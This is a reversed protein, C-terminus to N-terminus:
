KVMFSPLLNHITRRSIRRNNLDLIHWSEKRIINADKKEGLFPRAHWSRYVTRLLLVPGDEGQVHAVHGGDEGYAPGCSGM